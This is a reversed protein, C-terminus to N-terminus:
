GRADPTSAKLEALAENVLEIAQLPGMVQALPIGDGDRDRARELTVGLRARLDTLESVRAALSEDGGGSLFSLLGATCLECLDRDLEGRGANNVKSGSGNRLVMLGYKLTLVECTEPRRREFRDGCRDCTYYTDHHETM